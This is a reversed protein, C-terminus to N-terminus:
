AKALGREEPQLRGAVSVIDPWELLLRGYMCVFRQLLECAEGATLNPFDTPVCLQKSPLATRGVEIVRRLDRGWFNPKGGSEELRREMEAISLGVANWLYLRVIEEFDPRSMSGFGM